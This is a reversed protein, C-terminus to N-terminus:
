GFTNEKTAIMYLFGDPQGYETAIDGITASIVPLHHASTGDQKKSEVMLIVSQWSKVDKMKKKVNVLFQALTHDWGVYFRLVVPTAQLKVFIPILRKSTGASYVSGLRSLIIARKRPNYKAAIEDIFSSEM